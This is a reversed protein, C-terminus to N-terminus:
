LSHKNHPTIVSRLAFLIHFTGYRVAEQQQSTYEAFFFGNTRSTTTSQARGITFPFAFSVASWEEFM